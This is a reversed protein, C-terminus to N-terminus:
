QQHLNCGEGFTINPKTGQPVVIAILRGAPPPGAVSLCTWVDQGAEKYAKIQAPTLDSQSPIGLGGLASICGTLFYAIVLLGAIFCVLDSKFDTM